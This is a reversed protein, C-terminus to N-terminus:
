ATTREEDGLAATLIDSINIIALALCDPNNCKVELWDAYTMRANHHGRKDAKIREGTLIWEHYTDEGLDDHEYSIDTRIGEAM